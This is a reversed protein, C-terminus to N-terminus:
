ADPDEEALRELARALSGIEREIAAFTPALGSPEDRAAVLGYALSEAREPVFIALAGRLQHGIEVLARRDGRNAAARATAVMQPVTSTFLEITERLLERDGEVRRLIATRDLLPRGDDGVM